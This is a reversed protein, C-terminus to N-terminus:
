GQNFGIVAYSHVELARETLWTRLLCRQEAPMVIYACGVLSRQAARHVALLEDMPMAALQALTPQESNLDDMDTIAAALDGWDLQM